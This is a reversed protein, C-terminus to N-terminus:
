GQPKPAHVSTPRHPEVRAKDAKGESRSVGPAAAEAAGILNYPLQTALAGAGVGLGSRKLFARRDMTQGLTRAASGLLRRASGTAASSKKTLM